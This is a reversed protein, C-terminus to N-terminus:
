ATDAINLWTFASKMKTYLSLKYNTLCLIVLTLQKPKVALFIGRQDLFKFCQHNLVLMLLVKRNYLNLVKRVIM